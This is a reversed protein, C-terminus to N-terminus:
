REDDSDSWLEHWRVGLAIVAQAVGWDGSVPDPEVRVRLALDSAFRARPAGLEVGVGAVLAGVAGHDEVWTRGGGLRMWLRYTVPWVQLGISGGARWHNDADIAAFGEVSLALSPDRIPPGIVGADLMVASGGDDGVRGAGAAIGGYFGHRLNYATDPLIGREGEARVVTASAAALIIAFAAHRPKMVLGSPRGRGVVM